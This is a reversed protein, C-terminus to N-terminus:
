SLQGSLKTYYTGGIYHGAKYCGMPQLYLSSLSFSVLHCHSYIAAGAVLDWLVVLIKASQGIGAM